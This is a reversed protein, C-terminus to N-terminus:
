LVGWHILAAEADSVSRACCWGAAAHMLCFNGFDSEAPSLEDGPEKVLILHTKFQPGGLVAIYPVGTEHNVVLRWRYGNPLRAIVFARIDDWLYESM